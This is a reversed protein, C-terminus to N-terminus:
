VINVEMELEVDFKESVNRVIMKAFEIIETTTAGGYNVIVLPQNVYTGVNGKKFGKLGAHEILWAAPVKIKQNAASFFPIEPYSQKLQEFKETSIIPNKFFSGANGLVSVDPLKATRQQIVINRINELSLTKNEIFSKINGYNLVWNHNRKTLRYTSDLVIWQGNEKHKFFSDRYGFACEKNSFEKVSFDTLSLANLRQLTDKIETGYAGINQIPAAGATGPIYSLNEVGGYNNEVCYRVFDDWNEGANVTIWIYDDDEKIISIGKFCIKFIVEPITLFLVNSGGGLIYFSGNFCGKEKATYIDSLSEIEILSSANVDVGFTHFSKLSINNLIKM